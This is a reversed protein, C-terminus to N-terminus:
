PRGSLVEATGGAAEIKKRASQSFANARVILPHKLKGDGLIKVRKQDSSIFGNKKFYSADVTTGEPIDILRELNVIQFKERLPNIFGRKPIRRQLPMQGGEFSSGINAGTRVKQGKHGRTSTHGGHGSGAGRGIRKRKKVADKRRELTALTIM